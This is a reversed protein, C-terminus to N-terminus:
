PEVVGGHPRVNEVIRVQGAPLSREVTPKIGACKGSRLESLETRRTLADDFARPYVDHAEAEGLLEHEVFPGPKPPFHGRAIKEIM